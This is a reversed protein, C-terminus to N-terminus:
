QIVLSGAQDEVYALQVGLTDVQGIYTLQVSGFTGCPYYM